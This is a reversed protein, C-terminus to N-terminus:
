TSESAHVPSGRPHGPKWSQRRFDTDPALAVALERLIALRSGGDRNFGQLGHHQILMIPRRGARANQYGRRSCSDTPDLAIQKRGPQALTMANLITPLKCMSAVIPSKRQKGSRRTSRSAAM